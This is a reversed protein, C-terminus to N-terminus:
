WQIRPHLCQFCCETPSFWCTHKAAAFFPKLWCLSFSGHLFYLPPTFWCAFRTFFLLCYRKMLGMWLPQHRNAVQYYPGQNAAFLMSSLPNNVIVCLTIGMLDILRWEFQCIGPLSCDHSSACVYCIGPNSCLSICMPSLWFVNRSSFFPITFLSYHFTSSFPIQGVCITVPLISLICVVPNFSCAIVVLCTLTWAVLM